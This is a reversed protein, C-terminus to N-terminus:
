SIGLYRIINRSLATKHFLLVVDPAPIGCDSYNRNCAVCLIEHFFFWFSSRIESRNWWAFWIWARIIHGFGVLSSEPARRPLRLSVSRRLIFLRVQWSISVFNTWCANKFQICRHLFFFARSSILVYSLYVFTSYIFILQSLSLSLSLILFLFLFFYGSHLLVVFPFYFSTFLRFTSFIAILTCHCDIFVHRRSLAYSLPHFPLLALQSSFSISCPPSFIAIYLPTPFVDLFIYHIKQMNIANWTKSQMDGTM